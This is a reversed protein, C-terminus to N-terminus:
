RWFLSTSHITLLMSVIGTLLLCRSAIRTAFCFSLSCWFNISTVVFPQCSSSMGQETKWNCGPHFLQLLHCLLALFSFLWVLNSSSVFSLFLWAPWNPVMEHRRCAFSSINQGPIDLSRLCYTSVHPIHAFQLSLSADSGRYMCAALISGEM